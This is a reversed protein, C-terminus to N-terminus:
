FGLLCTGPEELVGVGRGAGSTWVGQDDGAIRGGKPDEEGLV